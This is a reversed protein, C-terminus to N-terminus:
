HGEKRQGVFTAWAQVAQGLVLRVDEDAALLGAEDLVAPDDGKALGFRTAPRGWNASEQDFTGPRRYEVRDDYPVYGYQEKLDPALVGVGFLYQKYGQGQNDFRGPYAVELEALYLRVEGLGRSKAFGLRVRGESLDRLTLALLGVQWLEFNFLTLTTIFRGELAVEMDFPGVAVGGSLRDIAVNQRMSLVDIPTTPYADAPLFHSAQVMHGYIRCALCLNRYQEATDKINKRRIFDSCHGARDLPDCCTQRNSDLATRIIRESHSRIVGKLSSGPLYITREGGNPHQTRVFNMSPLTPDAGSEVGSKILIPGAPEIVVKLKLENVRRKHM